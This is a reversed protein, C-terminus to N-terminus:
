KAADDILHRGGQKVVRVSLQQQGRGDPYTVKAPVQVSGDPQSTVGQACCAGLREAIAGWHQQFADYGGFEQQARPTLMNWMAPVGGEANYYDMVLLGAARYDTVKETNAAPAVPVSSTPAPENPGPAPEVQSSGPPQQGENQGGSGSSNILAAIAAGVVAAAVIAALVVVRRSRQEGRASSTQDPRYAAPRAQAPPPGAPVAATPVINPPMQPTASPRQPEVRKTATSSMAALSPPASARGGAVEALASGAEKMSPRESEERSLLSMMVSTLPGAKAPATFDGMAVAYLQALPNEKFGYPPQGEVAHYLTAGLSFVDSARSPEQGKAVEPSLYAPTGALMGTTQTLTDDLARSIGFDTIKVTGSDTILLNGPKVDRHVIGAAHAAALAAAAQSGIEAVEHPPLTGRASLVAALSSAALYEMILCPDGDHEAVDFLAIANRHQLRAAIRAERMARRRADEAQEPSLGPRILLQKIAVNRDLREDRAQWVVGMAGSGISDLLRYRGAIVHGKDIVVREEHFNCGHGRGPHPHVDDVMDFAASLARV